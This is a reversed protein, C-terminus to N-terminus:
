LFARCLADIARLLAPPLEIAGMAYAPLADLVANLLTIRGGSSLLLSAWGSLYKDISAILPAFHYLKLKDCTLPLGLYTQPFGELRCGLVAQIENVVEAGVHMPVMTSKSFNIVLDTARAFQDLIRKLCSAAAADARFIVLTDDAYQLVPCPAKGDVLPHQLSVELQIMRQLLDGM